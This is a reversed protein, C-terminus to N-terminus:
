FLKLQFTGNLAKSKFIPELQDLRCRQFNMEKLHKRLPKRFVLSVLEMYTQSSARKRATKHMQEKQAQTTKLHNLLSASNQREAKTIEYLKRMGNIKADIAEKKIIEEL